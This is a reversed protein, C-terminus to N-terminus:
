PVLDELRFRSKPGAAAASESPEKRADRATTPPAKAVAPAPREAPEPLRAAVPATKPQPQPQPAPKAAVAASPTTTPSAAPPPAAAAPKAAVPEEAPLGPTFPTVGKGDAKAVRTAESEGREGFPVWGFWGCFFDAMKYYNLNWMVGVFGLHLYHICAPRYNARGEKADRAIGVVGASNKQVTARDGAGAGKWSNEERGWFLVGANNQHHEGAGLKGGGMGVFYGDVKSYGIPTVMPCNAYLGFQPKKSFTLGLDMMQTADSWRRSLYTCGPAGGLVALCVVLIAVAEGRVCRSRM